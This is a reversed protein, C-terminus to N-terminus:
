QPTEYFEGTLRVLKFVRSASIKMNKKNAEWTSWFGSFIRWTTHGQLTYLVVYQEPIFAKPSTFNKKKPAKTESFKALFVPDNDDTPMAKGSFGMDVMPRPDVNELKLGSLNIGKNKRGM